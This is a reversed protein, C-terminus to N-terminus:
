VPIETEQERTTNQSQSLRKVQKIELVYLLNTVYWARLSVITTIIFKFLNRYSKLAVSNSKMVNWIPRNPSSFFGRVYVCVRAHIPLLRQWTFSSYEHCECIRKDPRLKNKQEKEEKLPNANAPTHNWIFVLLSSILISNTLTLNLFWNMM